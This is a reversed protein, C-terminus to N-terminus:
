FTPTKKLQINNTTETTNTEGPAPYCNATSM